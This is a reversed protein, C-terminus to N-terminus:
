SRKAKVILFDPKHLNDSYDPYKRLLEEDPHPEVLKEITFGAETLTNIITSFMRHYKKIGDVFWRSEKEEEVCYNKLNVYLKQGNEDLTWREGTTHCTNIPHEQSFIFTGGENLHEYVEKVVRDFDEIYHMALSSIVLDFKEKIQGIDEMPM